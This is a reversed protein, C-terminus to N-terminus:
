PTKKPDEIPKLTKLIHIVDLMVNVGTVKDNELVTRIDIDIKNILDKQGRIYDSM